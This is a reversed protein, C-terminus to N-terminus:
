QTATGTSALKRRLMDNLGAQCHESM